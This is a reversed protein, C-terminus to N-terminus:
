RRTRGPPSIPNTSAGTQAEAAAPSESSRRRDHIMFKADLPEFHDAAELLSKATTGPFAIVEVRPGIAKVRKALSTFDGDGSVLVVVDLDGAADIVDLALEIDWDGKMSGDARVMLPKRRVSIAREELRAIFQSQDSEEAEVLYATARILRRDRVAAQLLADFDLKGKLRRAGYYVNQVDIFVGVRAGPGRARARRAGRRPTTEDRELLATRLEDFRRAHQEFAQGLEHRQRELETKIRQEAREAPAPRREAAAPRPQPATRSARELAHVLKRQTAELGRVVRLLEALAPDAQAEPPKATTAAQAATRAGALEHRLREVLMRSEALEGKRQILDSKLARQSERSKLLQADGHRIKKELAAQKRRQRQEDRAPAPAPADPTAGAGNTALGLLHAQALRGGVGDLDTEGSALLFLHLGLNSGAKLATDDILRELKGEPRLAAWDRAAEATERDLAQLIAKRAPERNAAATVLDAVLRDKGQTKTRMGRYKLGCQTALQVLRGQDLLDRLVRSLGTSGLREFIQSASRAM